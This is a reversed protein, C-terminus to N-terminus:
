VTTYHKISPVLGYQQESLLVQTIRIGSLPKIVAHHLCLRPLPIVEM